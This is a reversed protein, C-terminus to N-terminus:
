PRTTTRVNKPRTTPGSTVAETAAAEVAGAAAATATARPPRHHSVLDPEDGRWLKTSEELHKEALVVVRDVDLHLFQLGDNPEHVVAVDVLHAGGVCVPTVSLSLSVDPIM